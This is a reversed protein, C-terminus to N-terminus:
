KSFLSRESCPVFLPSSVFGNSQNGEILLNSQLAYLNTIHYIKYQILLSYSRHYYDQYKWQKLGMERSSNKQDGSLELKRSVVTTFIFSNWTKDKIRTEITLRYIYGWIVRHMTNQDNHFDIPTMLYTFLFNVPLFLTTM